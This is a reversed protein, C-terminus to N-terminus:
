IIQAFYQARGDQKHEKFNPILWGFIDSLFNFKCKEM